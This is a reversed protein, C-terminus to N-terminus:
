PNAKCEAGAAVPARRFKRAVWQFPWLNQTSVPKPLGAVNRALAAIQRSFSSNERPLRKQECAQQMEHNDASLSAAIQIGFLKDIESTSLPQVKGIQNVILNLREEKVGASKLANVVLIAGYLSTIATTTVM